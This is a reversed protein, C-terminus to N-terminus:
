QYFNIGPVLCARTTKDSGLDWIEAQVSHQPPLSIDYRSWYDMLDIAPFDLSEMVLNWYKVKNEMEEKSLTTAQLLMELHTTSLPFLAVRVLLSGRSLVTNIKDNTMVDEERYYKTGPLSRLDVLLSANHSEPNNFNLASGELNFRVTVDKQDPFM